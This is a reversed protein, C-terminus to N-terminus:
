TAACLRAPCRRPIFTSAPSLTHRVAWHLGMQRQPIAVPGVKEIVADPITMKLRLVGGKEVGGAPPGLTVSFDKMTWRWANQEIGHFGKVLQGATKPDAVHVMTALAPVPQEEITGVTV